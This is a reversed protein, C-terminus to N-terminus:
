VCGCVLLRQQLEAAKDPIWLVLRGRHEVRYLEEERSGALDIVTQIEKSDGAVAGQVPEM